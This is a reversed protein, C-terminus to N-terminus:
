HTTVSITKASKAAEATKPVTVTLVGKSFDASIHEDDATEPLRFVREFRGYSRETLHYDAKEEISEMKKEGAITLLGERLTVQVDKDDLGPLEACIQYKDDTERVDVEPALGGGPRLAGGLHRLPDLDFLGGGGFPASFLTDFLRDVEQRLSVLPHRGGVVSPPTSEPPQRQINGAM